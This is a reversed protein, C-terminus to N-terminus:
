KKKGSFYRYVIYPAIVCLVILSAVKAYLDLYIDIQQYAKGFFMGLSLLLASQPISVLICSGIYRWYPVKLIGAMILGVSGIGHVLKSLAASQGHHTHFFSEAGDIKEQHIGFWRGYKLVFGRGKLGIAYFLSDGIVDGTVGVIYVILPNFIGQTVLFGAIVMLIPGEFIALPLLVLYKYHILFSILHEM